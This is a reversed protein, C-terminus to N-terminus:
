LDEMYKSDYNFVAIQAWTAVGAGWCRLAM